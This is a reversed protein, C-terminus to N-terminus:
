TTKSPELFESTRDYLYSYVFSTEDKPRDVRPHDFYSFVRVNDEDYGAGAHVLDQRFFVIDGINLNLVKHKKRARPTRRPKETDKDGDEKADKTFIEHSKPWVVLRTGRHLCMVASSPFPINNEFTGVVKKYNDDIPKDLHPQQEVCGEQSYLFVRGNPVLEPFYKKGITDLYNKLEDFKPFNDLSCQFRKNDGWLEKSGEVANIPDGPKRNFISIANNFMYNVIRRKLQPGCAKIAAKFEDTAKIVAYGQNRHLTRQKRIYQEFKVEKALKVDPIALNPYFKRDKKPM